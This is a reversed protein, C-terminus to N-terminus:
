ELSKILTLDVLLPKALEINYTDGNSITTGAPGGTYLWYWNTADIETVMDVKLTNNDRWVMQYKRTTRDYLRKGDKWMRVENIYPSRSRILIGYKKNPDLPMGDYVEGVISLHKIRNDFSLNGDRNYLRLVSTGTMQAVQAMDFIYFNAVIPTLAFFRLDFGNTKSVVDEVYIRENTGGLEYVILPSICDKATFNGYFRKGISATTETAVTFKQSLGFCIDNNDIMVQRNNNYIKIGASM